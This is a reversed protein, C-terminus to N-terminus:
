LARATSPLLYWSAAIYARPEAKVGERREAPSIVMYGRKILASAKVPQHSIPIIYDDGDIRTYAMKTGDIEYMQRDTWPM